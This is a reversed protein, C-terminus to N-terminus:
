YDEDGVEQLIQASAGPGMGDSDGQFASQYSGLLRDTRVPSL